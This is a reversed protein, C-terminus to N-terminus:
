SFTYQMIVKGLPIRWADSKDKDGGGYDFGVFNKGIGYYTEQPTIIGKKIIPLLPLDNDRFYSEIISNRYDRSCGLRTFLASPMGSEHAEELLPGGYPFAKFESEPKDILYSLMYRHLRELIHRDLRRDGGFLKITEPTLEGFFPGDQYFAGKIAELYEAYRSLLYANDEKQFFLDSIVANFNGVNRLAEGATPVYEVHSIIVPRSIRVRRAVGDGTLPSSGKRNTLPPRYGIEGPTYPVNSPKYFKYDLPFERKDLLDNAIALFERLGLGTAIPSSTHRFPYLPYGNSPDWEPLREGLRVAYSHLPLGCREGVSDADVFDAAVVKSGKLADFAQRSAQLYEANGEAVLIRLEPIDSM